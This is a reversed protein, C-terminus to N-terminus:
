TELRIHRRKLRLLRLSRLGDILVVLFIIGAQVMPQLYLNVQTYVLGSQVIEVLVSGIVAGFAGGVGGFLSTGGIVAAAIVDLEKGRAFPQTLRGSQAILIFGGLAACVGCIVYVAAVVRGTNIGAKKATEVDNGVAYVQRGFPTRTLVFHAILVVLAFVIIPMPIGLFSSVGFDLLSRPYDVGHSETIATGIGRGAVLTALTVMFPAIKLNVICYANVAGFLAGLLLAAFLAPVVGFEPSGMLYGAFLASLYMNSGVSLDIGATLLVFSMGVAVIGTFAAQKVINSINQLDFFNPSQVGFFVFVVLLLLLATNRFCLEFLRERRNM